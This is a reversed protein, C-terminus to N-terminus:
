DRPDFWDALDFLWDALNVLQWALWDFAQGIWRM